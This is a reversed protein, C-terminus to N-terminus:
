GFRQGTVQERRRCEAIVRASVVERRQRQRQEAHRYRYRAPVRFAQHGQPQREAIQQHEAGVNESREM